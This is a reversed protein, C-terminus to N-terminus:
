QSPRGSFRNESASVFLDCIPIFILLAFPDLNNLVDNPVGHTSMVAAQSTLNSTLQNYTLGTADNTVTRVILQFRECYIPYWCFVSCAKLGRKVEDVWVDDFVMWKPRQEVPIKSPKANEWFDPATLKKYCKMPNLSWRGKAAYRWLRLATALVSGTPPSRKYRNRGLWLVLPCFM